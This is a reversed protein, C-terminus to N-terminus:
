NSTTTLPATDCVTGIFIQEMFKIGESESRSSPLSLYFSTLEKFAFVTTDLGLNSKFYVDVYEQNKQLFVEKDFPDITLANRAKHILVVIKTKPDNVVLSSLESETLGNLEGNYGNYLYEALVEREKQSFERKFGSIVKIVDQVFPYELDIIEQASKRIVNKDSNTVIIKASYQALQKAIRYYSEHIPMIVGRFDNPLQSLVKLNEQKAECSDSTKAFTSALFLSLLMFLSALFGKSTSTSINITPKM